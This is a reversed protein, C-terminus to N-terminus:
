RARAGNEHFGRGSLGFRVDARQLAHVAEPQFQRRFRRIATLKHASLKEERDSKTTM